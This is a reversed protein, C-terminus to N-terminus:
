LPTRATSMSTVIKDLTALQDLLLHYSQTDNLGSSALSGCGEEGEPSDRGDRNGVDLGLRVHGNDGNSALRTPRFTTEEVKAMLQQVVKQISALQHASSNSVASKEELQQHLQRTENKLNIIEVARSEALGLLHSCRTEKDKILDDKVNAVSLVGKKEAEAERLAEILANKELMMFEHLERSECETDQVQQLLTKQAALSRELEQQLQTRAQNTEMLQSRLQQITHSLTAVQRDANSVRTRWQAVLADASNARAHSEALRDSLSQMREQWCQDLIRQETLRCQTSALEVQLRQIESFAQDLSKIDGLSLSARQSSTASSIDSAPLSTLSTKEHEVEFSLSSSTSAIPTQETSYRTTPPSIPSTYTISSTVGSLCTSSSSSVAGSTASSPRSLHATVYGHSHTPAILDRNPLSSSSSSAPTEVSSCQTRSVANALAHADAAHTSAVVCASAHEPCDVFYEPSDRGTSSGSYLSGGEKECCDDSTSGRSLLRGCQSSTEVGKKSNDRKSKNLVSVDSISQIISERSSSISSKGEACGIKKSKNPTSACSGSGKKTIESSRQLKNHLSEKSSAPRRSKETTSVIAQSKTKPLKTTSGSKVLVPKVSKTSPVKSTRSHLSQTSSVTDSSGLQSKKSLNSKLSVVSNKRTKLDLQSTEVHSASSQKRNLPPDSLKMKSNSSKSSVCNKADSVNARVSVPKISRMKSNTQQTRGDVIADKQEHIRKQTSKLNSVIGSKDSNVKPNPKISSCKSSIRSGNNVSPASFKPKSKVTLNSSSITTRELKQLGRSSQVPGSPQSTKLNGTSLTTNDSVNAADSLEASNESRAAVNVTFQCSFEDSHPINQEDSRPAVDPSGKFYINESDTWVSQSPIDAASNARSSEHRDASEESKDDQVVLSEVSGMNSSGTVPVSRCQKVHGQHATVTALQDTFVGTSDKIVDLKTNPVGSALSACDRDYEDEDVEDVRPLRTQAPAGFHHRGPCSRQKASVLRRNFMWNHLIVNSYWKADEIADDEMFNIKISSNCRTDAMSPVFADHFSKEDVSDVNSHEITVNGLTVRDYFATPDRLPSRRSSFSGDTVNCGVLPTPRWSHGVQEDDEEDAISDVIVETEPLEADATLLAGFTLPPVRSHTVTDCHPHLLTSPGGINVGSVCLPPVALCGLNIM